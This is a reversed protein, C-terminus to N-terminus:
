TKEATYQCPHSVHRPRNSPDTIKVISVNQCLKVCNTLQEVQWQTPLGVEDGKQYTATSTEPFIKCLPWINLKTRPCTWAQVLDVRDSNHSRMETHM